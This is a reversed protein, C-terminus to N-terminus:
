PRQIHAVRQLLLPHLAPGSCVLGYQKPDPRNYLYSGGWNDTALGGAETVILEAAAMNASVGLHPQSSHAERGTVVVRFFAAGKHGSVAKM